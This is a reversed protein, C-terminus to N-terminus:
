LLLLLLSALISTAVARFFAVLLMSPLSAWGGLGTAATSRPSSACLLALETSALLPTLEAM